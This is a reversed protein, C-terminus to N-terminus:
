PNSVTWRLVRLFSLFRQTRRPGILEKRKERKVAWETTAAPHRTRRIRGASLSYRRCEALTKEVRKDLDDLRVLLDEHRAELDILFDLQATYQDM